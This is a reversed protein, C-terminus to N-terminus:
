SARDADANTGSGNVQMLKQLSVVSAPSVAPEPDQTVRRVALCMAAAFLCLASAVYWALDYNGLKDRVLGTLGAAIAAGIQHSAFVWGFVVPGQDGFAMRCLAITPPVTAVWDLGYFLIFVFMSPHVSNAFLSPLVLLSAGRGLYYIGLLWRPDFRDTLWGSFITGVVDFIGVLALLGAAATQAMGHDHAAPIFHTGVLGNTTMGCIAFSGVLLWFVGRKSAMRLTRLAVVAPNGGSRRPVTVVAAPDAAGSIAEGYARVGISAPSDHLKWVVVPIVLLAAATTVTAATRWGHETSLSALLPLFVLQGAAAAATLVGSVLGRQAVFWRGTVVAVFSMAMAGTGLGIVVGWCLLLQWPQTMWIPLVSGVAILLLAAVVVRKIGVRDMLAASFPAALGYLVLNISVASSITGMSWGFEMHLPEMLVGPVSRFGAAGVAALFAAAAVWWAPHM